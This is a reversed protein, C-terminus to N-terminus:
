DSQPMFLWDLFFILTRSCISEVHCHHPALQSTASFLSIFCELVAYLHHHLWLALGLSDIVAPFFWFYISYLQWQSFDCNEIRFKLNSVQSAFKREPENQFIKSHFNISLIDPDLVKSFRQSVWNPRFGKLEDGWKKKKKKTVFPTIKSQLYLKMCGDKVTLALSPDTLATLIKRHKPNWGKM